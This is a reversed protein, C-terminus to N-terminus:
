RAVVTFFDRSYPSLLQGPIGSQGPVVPVAVPGSGHHVYLYGAVWEPNIDLEVARQAGAAILAAALTSPSLSEGAAWVLQGNGTIGLASRAVDVGGGLTSGWCGTACSEVNGAAASHDVLLNLDQLVSSVRRGRAPVGERWAGIQTGGDSYTVISGLGATLPVAVRGDAMFGVSGYSLRFGGNFAALLRHVERGSIQSGYSWGGGAPEASGAHLHLRALRQDFRMLTVGGRQALWAVPQGSVTAAVSWGSAPRRPVTVAPALPRRAAPAPAAPAPAQPQATGAHRPHLAAAGAPAGPATVTMTGSSQGGCGPACLSLAALPLALFALRM